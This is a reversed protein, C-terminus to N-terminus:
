SDLATVSVTDLIVNGDSANRITFNITCAGGSSNIIFKLAQGNSISFTTPSSAMTVPTGDNISYQVVEAPVGVTTWSVELNISSAIGSITQNITNNGSGPVSTDPWDVADPTVDAPPGGGYVLTKWAGGICVQIETVAKWAGGIVIQNETVTKWAAGIAIQGGVYAPPAATAVIPVLGLEEALGDLFIPVYIVRASSM